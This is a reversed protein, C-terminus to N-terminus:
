IYLKNEQPMERAIIYMRETKDSIESRIGYEYAAVFDMGAELLLRKITELDYARQIHVEEIREYLNAHKDENEVGDYDIDVNKYITIEYQNLSTDEFYTNEWIISCEKHNEAITTDGLVDRYLHKTKMDFIFIGGPDLYNNVLRFISLLEEEETIYNLSDCLCVVASVTGFLEFERMDQELYLIGDFSKDEENETEAGYGCLKFEKGRAIYLMEESNDIGIMDYGKASLRRTINGTGCGLECILGAKVGYECLLEYIYEVWADYPVDDMFLDYVSAFGSYITNEMDGM